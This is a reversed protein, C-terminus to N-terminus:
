QFAKFHWSTLVKHLIDLSKKKKVVFSFVKADLCHLNTFLGKESLALSRKWFILM